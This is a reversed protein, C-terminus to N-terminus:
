VSVVFSQLLQVLQLCERVHLVHFTVDMVDPDMRLAM